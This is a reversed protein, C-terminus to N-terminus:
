GKILKALGDKVGTFSYTQHVVPKGKMKADANEWVEELTPRDKAGYMNMQENDSLKRYILSEVSVISPNIAWSYVPETDGKRVVLVGPQAMGHEYGSKKDIVVDLL